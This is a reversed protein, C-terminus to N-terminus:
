ARLTYLNDKPAETFLQNEEWLFKPPSPELLEETMVFGVCFDQTRYFDTVLM